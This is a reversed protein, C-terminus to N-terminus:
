KAAAKAPTSSKTEPAVRPQAAPTKEAKVQATKVAPKEAPKAEAKPAAKKAAKKAPQKAAPKAKVPAAEAKPEAAKKAEPQAAPKAVPAVKAVEKALEQANPLDELSSKLVAAYEDRLKNVHGYTAKSAHAFRDKVSEAYATQAAVFGKVETQVSLSEVYKVSDAMFGTFFETQQQSFTELAKTNLAFLSGMPQSSKKVQETFKGFM